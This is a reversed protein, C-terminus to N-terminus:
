QRVSALVFHAGSSERTVVRANPIDNSLARNTASQEDFGHDIWRMILRQELTALPVDLSVTLDFCSSVGSWLPRNLLLYNGEVVVIRHHADVATAACRALDMARDFVPVYVSGESVNINTSKSSDVYDSVPTSLRQLLSYFGVVDFTHPAGKVARIGRADLIANDLHFGDMPVVVAPRTDPRDGNIREVLWDALTSKGSAPAGAIGVMLRKHPPQLEFAKIIKDILQDRHSLPTSNGLGSDQGM